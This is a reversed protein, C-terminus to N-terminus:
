RPKTQVPATKVVVIRELAVIKFKRGCQKNDCIWVSGTELGIDGEGIGGMDQGAMARMDMRHRCWPCQVAHLPGTVPGIVGKPHQARPNPQAAPRPPGSRVPM